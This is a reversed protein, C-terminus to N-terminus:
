ATVMSEARLIEIRALLLDNSAIALPNKNEYLHTMCQLCDWQHEHWLQWERADDLFAVSAWANSLEDGRPCLSTAEEYRAFKIVGDGKRRVLRVCYVNRELDAHM